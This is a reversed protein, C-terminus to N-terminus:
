GENKKKWLACVCVTNVNCLGFLYWKLLCFHSYNELMSPPRIFSLCFSCSFIFSLFAPLSIHTSPLPQCNRVVTTELDYIQSRPLATSPFFPTPWFFFLLLLPLSQFRSSHFPVVRKCQCEHPFKQGEGEKRSEGRSPWVYNNREKKM